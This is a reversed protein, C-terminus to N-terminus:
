EASEPKLSGTRRDREPKLPTNADEKMEIGTGVVRIRHGRCQPQQDNERDDGTRQGDHSVEIVIHQRHRLDGLYLASALPMLPSATKVKGSGTIM